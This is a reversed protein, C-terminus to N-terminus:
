TYVVTVEARNNINYSSSVLEHTMRLCYGRQRKISVDDDEEDGFQVLGKTM